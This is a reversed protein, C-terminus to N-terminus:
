GSDTKPKVATPSSVFSVQPATPPFSVASPSTSVMSSTNSFPVTNGYGSLVFHDWFLIVAPSSSCHFDGFSETAILLQQMLSLRTWSQGLAWSAFSCVLLRYRARCCSLMPPAPLVSLVGWAGKCNLAMWSGLVPPFIQVPDEFILSIWCTKGTRVSHCTGYRHYRFYESILVM